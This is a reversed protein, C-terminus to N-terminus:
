AFSTGTTQVFRDADDLWPFHGAASQIVLEADPCLGAFEAV